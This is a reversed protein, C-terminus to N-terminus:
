ATFGGDINIQKGQMASARGSAIFLAMAAIEQVNILQGSPIVDLIQQKVAEKPANMLQAIENIASDLMNGAVPGPNISIALVARGLHYDM